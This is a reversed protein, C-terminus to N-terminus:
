FQIFLRNPADFPRLCHCIHDRLTSLGATLHKNVTIIVESQLPVPSVPGWSLITSSYFLKFLKHNYKVTSSNNHNPADGRSLQRQTWIIDPHRYAPSEIEMKWCSFASFWQGIKNVNCQVNFVLSCAENACQHADHWRLYPWHTLICIAGTCPKISHLPREDHKGRQSWAENFLNSSRINM